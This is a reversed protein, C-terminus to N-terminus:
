VRGKSKDKDRRGEGSFVNNEQKLWSKWKSKREQQHKLVLRKYTTKTKITIPDIGDSLKRSDRTVPWTKLLYLKEWEM